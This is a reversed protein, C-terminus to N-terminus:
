IYTSWGLFFTTRANSHHGLFVSTKSMSGGLIGKVRGDVREDVDDDGGV